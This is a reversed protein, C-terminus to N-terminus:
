SPQLLCRVIWKVYVHVKRNFSIALSHMKKAQLDKVQWSNLVVLLRCMYGTAYDATVPYSNM